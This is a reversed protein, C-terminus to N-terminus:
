KNFKTVMEELTLEKAVVRSLVFIFIQEDKIGQMVRWLSLKMDYAAEEITLEINKSVSSKLELQPDVKSKKQRQGWWNSVRGCQLYRIKFIGSKGMESLGNFDRSMSELEMLSWRMMWWLEWKTSVYINYLQIYNRM